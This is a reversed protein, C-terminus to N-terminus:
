RLTSNGGGFWAGAQHWVKLALKEDHIRVNFGVNSRGTCPGDARGSVSKLGRFETSAVLGDRCCCFTRYEVDGDTYIVKPDLQSEHRLFFEDAGQEIRVGLEVRRFRRQWGALAHDLHLAGFRGTALVIADAVEDVDDGLTEARLGIRQKNLTISTVQASTQLSLGVGILRCILQHRKDLDMYVSDYRKRNEDFWAAPDTGHPALDPVVIGVSGLLNKFWVWARELRERPEVHWLNSASPFFSFKGDSFLGAGGPGSLITRPDLQSRDPLEPGSDYIIGDVGCDAIAASASLGAPGAGVVLVRRTTM